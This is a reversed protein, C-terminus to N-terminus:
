QYSIFWLVPQVAQMTEAPSLLEPDEDLFNKWGLRVWEPLGAQLATWTAFKDGRAGQGDAHVVTALEPLNKLQERHPVMSMRFQHLMFIKQPLNGAKTIGALWAGTANVEEASVSGIQGLPLQEPGLRWEPDLALGVNPQALLEQYQQAQTSFDTRGPQLDLVVYVGARAAEAVWPRLKEVPTENSYNGDQGAAGAAVTAIIEFAPVVPVSSYPQYQAALDKVRAISGALDQEGLAGLSPTGPHGYLAVFRRDPFVARGGGILEPPKPPLPAASSPSGGSTGQGTGSPPNAGSQGADSQQPGISCGSGLLLLALLTATAAFIPNRRTKGTSRTM